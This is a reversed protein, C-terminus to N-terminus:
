DLEVDNEPYKWYIKKIDINKCQIDKFCTSSNDSIYGKEKYLQKAGPHIIINKNSFLMNDKLLDDQLRNNRYKNYLYKDLENRINDINEYIIKTITYIFQDNINNRCVLISRSSLTILKNGMYNTTYFVRPDFDKYYLPSIFSKLIGSKTKDYEFGIFRVAKFKCLNIIFPNKNTTLLCIGDIDGKLFLNVLNNINSSIYYLKNKGNDVRSGNEIFQYGYIDLIKSILYFTSSNKEPVGLIFNREIKSYGNALDNINSIPLLNNVMICMYKFFLGSIFNINPVNNNVFNNNGFFADYAIEEQTIAIDIESKSLKTINELTGSTEILELPIYKSLIKGFQSELSDKPGLGFKLKNIIPIEYKFNGIERLPKFNLYNEKFINKFKYNLISIVIILLLIYYLM